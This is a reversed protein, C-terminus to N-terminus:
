QIIQSIHRALYYTPHMKMKRYKLYSYIPHLHNSADIAMSQTQDLLTLYQADPEVFFLSWQPNDCDCLNHHEVIWYYIAQKKSAVIMWSQESSPKPYPHYRHSKRLQLWYIRNTTTSQFYLLYYGNEKTYSKFILM